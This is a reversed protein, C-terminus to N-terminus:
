AVIVYFTGVKTNGGNSVVLKLRDNAVFIHDEVPENPSATDDFYSPTGDVGHTPQRPAVTKSANVAAEAWVSQGTAEVIHAFTVGDDYPTSVPKAYIVNIIRGTITPTYGVGDGSADTTVTVAHREAHM